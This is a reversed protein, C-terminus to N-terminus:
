IKPPQPKSAAAEKGEQIDYLRAKLMNLEHALAAKEEQAERNSKFSWVVDIVFLLLGFLTVYKLTSVYGAMKLLLSTNSQLILTFIFAGLHFAAFVAYFILRIKTM